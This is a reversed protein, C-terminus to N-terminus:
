NQSSTVVTPELETGPYSCPIRVRVAPASVPGPWDFLAM